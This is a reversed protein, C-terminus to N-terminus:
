FHTAEGVPMVVQGARTVLQQFEAEDLLVVRRGNMEIHVAREPNTTVREIAAVIEQEFRSM